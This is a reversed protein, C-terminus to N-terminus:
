APLGRVLFVALGVVALALLANLRGLWSAQRRLAAAQAASAEDSAALVRVSAPGLVFDHVASVVIMLSVLLVKLLLVQGFSSAFLRGSFFAEWTVGRYGANLLGTALLLGIATWGVARFRRGLSDLLPAREAPPLRRAVPVVVLALFLMGGVWVIASLIHIYVNLQYV